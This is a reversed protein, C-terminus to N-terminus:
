MNSVDHSGDLTISLPMNLLKMNDIMTQHMVDSLSLIMANAMEETWCHPKGVDINYLRLLDMQDRHKRVSLNMKVEAYVATLVAATPKHLPNNELKLVEKVMKFIEERNDQQELFKLDELHRQHGVSQEHRQILKKNLDKTPKLVGESKALESVDQKRLNSIDKMTHCIRCRYRSKEPHKKNFLLEFWSKVADTDVEDAPIIHSQFKRIWELWIKQFQTISWPYDNWQPDEQIKMKKLQARNLDANNEASRQAVKDEGPECIPKKNKAAEAIAENIKKPPVEGWQYSDCTGTDMSIGSDDQSTSTSASNSTSTSPVPELDVVPTSFTDVLDFLADGPM